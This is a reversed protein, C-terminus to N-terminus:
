ERIFKGTGDDGRLSWVGLVIMAVIDAVGILAHIWRLAGAHDLMEGLGIQILSLLVMSLALFFLGTSSRHKADIWAWVSCWIAALTLLYAVIAHIHGLGSSEQTFILFGLAGQCLALFAGLLAGYRLLTTALPPRSAITPTTM